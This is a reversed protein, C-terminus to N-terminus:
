NLHVYEYEVALNNIGREPPAIWGAMKGPTVVKHMLSKVFARDEDTPVWEHKRLAYEDKAILKGQTDVPLDAWAGISRRFHINPLTLRFAHGAREIARNWRRMGIECDKLYSERMVENLANLMPVEQAGEPTQLQMRAGRLVHDTYTSEDPRGKLGNAFGAASNSSIENGFLDLSSSCWFNIYKQLLPLDVAGARRIAAPDDAGLEKMVELTRKVVRGIGTEGVFMHHAEETLMFRCTRSLPDFSSEALSKLQYKGDRDTFYTFCYLSLWDTVPENFTSLIRPKDTDGSHRALLEEAEERGDRGFYAHLLYVMAWLHRGEEVNVQFLNRLDYLSPCTHGLLRQQEVSAPETDGQTVILRRLTSRYEGPVQQWVPQGMADGFGIKRDPAQDALFIGWRYDPMKVAGYHAWGESDVSVATRLYVDSSQFDSPGMEQWWNLFSPQWHELARQLTKDNALNVNNPIKEAYDIAM